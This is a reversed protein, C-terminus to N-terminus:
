QVKKWGGQVKQYQVGGMTKVEPAPNQYPYMPLSKPAYKSMMPTPDAHKGIINLVGSLKAKRTEPTDTTKIELPKIEAEISERTLRKSASANMVTNVLEANLTDVRRASEPNLLNATTQEKAMQNFLEKTSDMATRQANVSSQEKEATKPDVLGAHSLDIADLGQGGSQLSKLVTSRIANQQLLQANQLGWQASAMDAKAKAAPTGLKAAQLQMQHAYIDNMQARTANNATLNDHYLNQNAELLTKQQGLRSEQAGIDRDIQKNLFDLAPNGQHTFASGIGGLFLGIATAAKQGSAMSEQYHKPDVHGNAYDQMFQQQHEQFDKTKQAFDSLNNQRADVDSQENVANAKALQSEVGQQEGIAKAGEAVYGSVDPFIGTTTVTAPTSPADVPTAASSDENDVEEEAPTRAPSDPVWDASAGSSQIAAPAPAPASNKADEQDVEADAVTGDPTGEDLHLPLKELQKQHLAPLRAKSILIHHGDKHTMMVSKSDERTKKFNSLNLGRM